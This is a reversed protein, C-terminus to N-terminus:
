LLPAVREHAVAVGAPAARHPVLDLRDEVLVHTPDLEAVVEGEVRGAPLHLAELRRGLEVEPVHPEALLLARRRTFAETTRRRSASMGTEITTAVTAKTRIWRAGPSGAETMAPASALASSTRFIERWSPRSAGSGTCSARHYPRSSRPSRPSDM